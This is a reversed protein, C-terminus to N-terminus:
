RGIYVGPANDRREVYRTRDDRIVRRDGDCRREKTIVTRNDRVVRKEVMRCDRDPGITVSQAGAPAVAAAGVGLALATSLIITKM